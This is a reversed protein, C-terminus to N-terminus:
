SFLEKRRQDLFQLALLYGQAGAGVIVAAAVPSIYSHSRFHERAHVNTIHVEVVALDTAVIADRIAISTHTLGGPNLIVGQVTGSSAHLADVLVGEHNSQLFEVEWGLQRADTDISQEIHRLTQRGYLEPERTGLLNLNPGNLVLLRPRQNPVVGTSM